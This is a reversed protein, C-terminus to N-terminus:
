IPSTIPQSTYLFAFTGAYTIFDLIPGPESYDACFNEELHPPEVDLISMPGGALAGDFM